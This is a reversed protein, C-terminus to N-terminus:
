IWEKSYYMHLSKKLQQKARHILSEVASISTKMVVSIESYSLSEMKHLTFAIKQNKPLREIQSLLLQAREQNELALGPHNFDPIEIAEGSERWLSSLLAWRKKRKRSRLAELCKNVALRYLWTTLESQQGFQGIKQYFHIFVEQAMDEADDKQQLFSWCVNYVRSQNAKVVEEFAAEEGAVLRNILDRQEM